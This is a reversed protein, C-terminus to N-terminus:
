VRIQGCSACWGKLTEISCESVQGLSSRQVFYFRLMAACSGVDDAAPAFALVCDLPLDLWPLLACWLLDIFRIADMMRANLDLEFCSTSGFCVVLAFGLCFSCPCLETILTSTSSSFVCTGGVRCVSVLRIDDAMRPKLCLVLNLKLAPSFCV